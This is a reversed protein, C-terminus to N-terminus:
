RGAGFQGKTCQAGFIGRDHISFISTPSSTQTFDLDVLSIKLINDFKARIEM